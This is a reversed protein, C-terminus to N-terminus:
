NGRSTRPSRTDADALCQRLAKRQRFQSPKIGLLSGWLGIMGGNTALRDMLWPGHETRAPLGCAMFAAEYGAERVLPCAPVCYHPDGFPYSFYKVPRDTMERLTQLSARLQRAYEDPGEASLSAHWETHSGITMGAEALGRVQQPTMMPPATLRDTPVDLREALYEVVAARDVHRVRDKFARMIQFYAATKDRESSYPVTLVPGHWPSLDLELRPRPGARTLLDHMMSNEYRRGSAVYGSAIFFSAPMRYRQLIPLALEYNDAFGDDFTIVCAGGPLRGTRLGAVFADAEMVHCTAAVFRLQVDLGEVSIEISTQPRREGPGLVQHYVLAMGRRGRYALSVLPAAGLQCARRM